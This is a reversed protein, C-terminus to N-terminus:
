DARDVEAVDGKAIVTRRRRREISYREGNGLPRDKADDAAAPRALRGHGPQQLQQVAVVLAQDLDVAVVQALDVDIMQARAQADHQLLIEQEATRDALRDGRRFGVGTELLDDLRRPEGSGLFEDLLQRAAVLGEDLFARGVQRATLLLPEGDRPRQDAIRPDQDEVLRGAREVGVALRNDVGVQQADGLAPRQDDDRVAEGRQDAGVRDEHEFAAPDVVDAGMLLQEVTAVDVAPQPVLLMTVEDGPRGRMLDNRERVRRLSVEGSLITRSNWDSVPSIRSVGSGTAIRTVTAKIATNRTLRTRSATKVWSSRTTALVPM